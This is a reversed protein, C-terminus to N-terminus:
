EPETKVISYKTVGPPILGSFCNICCGHSRCTLDASEQRWLLTEQSPDGGQPKLAPWTVCLPLHRVDLQSCMPHTFFQPFLSFIASPTDHMGRCGQCCRKPSTGSSFWVIESLHAPSPDPPYLADITPNMIGQMRGSVSDQCFSKFFNAHSIHKSPFAPLM